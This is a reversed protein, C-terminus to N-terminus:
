KSTIAQVSVVVQKNSNTYIRVRVKTKNQRADIVDQLSASVADLISWNNATLSNKFINFNNAATRASVWERVAIVDGNLNVTSYNQIIAVDPELPIDSPFGEPTLQSDVVQITGASPPSVPGRSIKFVGRWVLVAAIVVVIIIIIIFVKRM